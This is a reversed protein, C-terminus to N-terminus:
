SAFNEMWDIAAEAQALDGDCGRELLTAVLAEAAVDASGVHRKTFVEDTITRL